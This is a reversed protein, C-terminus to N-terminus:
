PTKCCKATSQPMKHCIPLLWSRTQPTKRHKATNQLNKHHKAANQPTKHHKATNQPTKRHKAANQPTKCRKTARQRYNETTPGFIQPPTLGGGGKSTPQFYNHRFPPATARNGGQFCTEPKKWTLSKQKQVCTPDRGSTSAPCWPKSSVTVTLGYNKKRGYSQGAM